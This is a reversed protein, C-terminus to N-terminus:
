TEPQVGTEEKTDSTVARVPTGACKNVKTTSPLHHCLLENKYINPSCPHSARDSPTTAPLTKEQGVTRRPMNVQHNSRSESETSCTHAKSAPFHFLWSHNQVSSKAAEAQVPAFCAALMPQEAMPGAPGFKRCSGSNPLRM